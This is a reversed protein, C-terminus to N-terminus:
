ASILESISPVSIKPMETMLTLYYCTKVLAMGALNLQQGSPLRPPLLTDSVLIISVIIVRSTLYLWVSVPLENKCLSFIQYM